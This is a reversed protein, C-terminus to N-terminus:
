MKFSYLLLTLTTMVIFTGFLAFLFTNQSVQYFYDGPLSCLTPNQIVAGLMVGMIGGMVGHYFGSLASQYKVLSGLAFGFCAGITAAVLSTIFLPVPILLQCILGMQLSVISSSCTAMMLGYRESYMQSKKRICLYFIIGFVSNVVLVISLFFTM